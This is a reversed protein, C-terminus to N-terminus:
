LVKKKGKCHSFMLTTRMMGGSKLTPRVRVKISNFCLSSTSRCASSPLRVRVKISNFCTLTRWKGSVTATKSTGKHFQFVMYNTQANMRNTQRVRVKISNFSLNLEKFKRLRARTKSTGKHFQFTNQASVTGPSLHRVRVKISNFCYLRFYQHLKKKTKSTGKHFQFM